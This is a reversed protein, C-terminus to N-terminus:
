TAKRFHFLYVNWFVRGFILGGVVDLIAHQRTALTSYCISLFWIINIAHWWSPVHMLRMQQRILCGSLLAFAVHLSPLANGLFDTRRLFALWPYDSIRSFAIPAFTPLTWFVILGVMSMAGAATVFARVEARTGILALSLSLYVWLSGYPVLMLESAPIWHDLATMYVARPTGLPNTMVVFYLWLFSAIGGATLLMKTVWMFRIRRRLELWLRPSYAGPRTM